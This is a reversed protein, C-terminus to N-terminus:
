VLGIEKLDGQAKHGKQEEAAKTELHGRVDWQDWQDGPARHVQSVQLERNFLFTAM